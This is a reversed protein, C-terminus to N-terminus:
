VPSTLYRFFAFVYDELKRIKQSVEPPIDDGTLANALKAEALFLQVHKKTIFNSPRIAVLNTGLKPFVKSFLYSMMETSWQKHPEMEKPQRKPHYGAQIGVVVATKGPLRALVPNTINEDLELAVAGIAGPFYYSPGAPYLHFSQRALAISTEKSAPYYAICNLPKKGTILAEVYFSDPNTRGHFFIALQEPVDRNLLADHIEGVHGLFQKRLTHLNPNIAGSESSLEAVRWREYLETFPNPMDDATQPYNILM